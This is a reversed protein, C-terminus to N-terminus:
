AHKNIKSRISEVTQDTIDGKVFLKGFAAATAFELTEEASHGNQIGYILGAMFCDGSGVRDIVETATYGASAYLNGQQFLTTYYNLGEDTDFRFTNAVISVKPFQKQIEASTQEAHQHYSERVDHSILGENLPIGLMTNAAWINGMVLNCHAALQPMVDVPRKGYQWLRSRHNLDLSVRIGKASAAEVAEQCTDAANQTLSAAVASLHFWSKGELVQDWDIMGPKLQSFSSGARDYAIGSHKVDKGQQLYYTGMREGGYVVASTDISKKNLYGVLQESLFNQPLATCYAVPMGWQALAAAVNFEAGGPYVPLSSATPWEGGVQQPFRLWRGGLCVPM